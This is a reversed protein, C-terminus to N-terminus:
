LETALEKFPTLWLPAETLLSPLYDSAHGLRKPSNPSREGCNLARHEAKASETSPGGTL